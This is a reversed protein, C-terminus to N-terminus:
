SILLRLRLSREGLWRRWLGSSIGVGRRTGENIVWFGFPLLATREILVIAFEDLYGRREDVDAIPNSATPGWGSGLHVFQYGGAQLISAVDNHQIMRYPVTRDLSQEGPSDSLWGLQTMNLDLGIVSINRCLQVQGERLM